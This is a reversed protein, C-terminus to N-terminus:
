FPIQMLLDKRQLNLTPLKFSLDFSSAKSFTFNNFNVSPQVTAGIALQIAIEQKEASGVGSSHYYKKTLFRSDDEPTIELFKVKKLYIDSNLMSVPVKKTIAPGIEFSGYTSLKLTTMSKDNDMLKVFYSGNLTVLYYMEGVELGTDTGAIYPLVFQNNNPSVVLPTSAPINFQVAMTSNEPRIFIMSKIDSYRLNGLVDNAPATNWEVLIPGFKKFGSLNATRNILLQNYTDENFYLPPIIGSKYRFQVLSTKLEEVVLILNSRSQLSANHKQVFVLIAVLGMAVISAIAIETLKNILMTIERYFVETSAVRNQIPLLYVTDFM